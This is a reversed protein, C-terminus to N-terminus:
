FVHALLCVEILDLTKSEYELYSFTLGQFVKKQNVITIRVILSLLMREQFQELYTRVSSMTFSYKESNFSYKLNQFRHFDKLVLELMSPVFAEVQNM